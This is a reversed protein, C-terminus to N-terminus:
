DLNRNLRAHRVDMNRVYDFFRVKCDFFERFDMRNICPLKGAVAHIERQAVNASTLGLIDFAQINRQTPSM